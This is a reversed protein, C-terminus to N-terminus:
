VQVEKKFLEQFVNNKNSLKTYFKIFKQRCEYDLGFSEVKHQPFSKIEISRPDYEFISQLQKNLDKEREELSLTVKEQRNGPKEYRNSYRPLNPRQKKDNIKGSNYDFLKYQSGHPQNM